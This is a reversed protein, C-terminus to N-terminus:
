NSRVIAHASSRRSTRHGARKSCAKCFYGTARRDSRMTPQLNHLVGIRRIREGQQARAALPWAAAASGLLTMFEDGASITKPEQCLAVPSWYGPSHVIALAIAACKKEKLGYKEILKAVHYRGKRSCKTCEVHLADLKGEIDGFIIYTRPM